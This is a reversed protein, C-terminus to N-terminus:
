EEEGGFSTSIPMQANRRLVTSKGGDEVLKASSLLDKFEDEISNEWFAITADSQKILSRARELQRISNRLEGRKETFEAHIPENKEVLAIMERHLKDALTFLKQMKRSSEVYEAMEPNDKRRQDLWAANKELLSKREKILRREDILSLAQKEIKGEIDELAEELKEKAWKPDLNKLGGSEELKTRLTRTQHLLERAENQAVNRRQKLEAVSNLGADRALRLKEVEPALTDADESMDAEIDPLAIALVKRRELITSALDGPKLAILDTIDM